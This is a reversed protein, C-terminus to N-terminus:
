SMALTGSQDCIQSLDYEKFDTILDEIKKSFQDHLVVVAEHDNLFMLGITNSITPHFTTTKKQDSSHRYLFVEGASFPIKKVISLVEDSGDVVVRGLNRLLESVGHYDTLYGSLGETNDLKSEHDLVAEVAFITKKSSM